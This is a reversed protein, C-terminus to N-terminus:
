LCLLRPTVTICRSHQGFVALLCGGSLRKPIIEDAVSVWMSLFGFAYLSGINFVECACEFERFDEQDTGHM